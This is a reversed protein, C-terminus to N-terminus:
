DVAGLAALVALQLAQFVETSSRLLSHLYPMFAVSHLMNLATYTVLLHCDLLESIRSNMIKLRGIISCAFLLDIDEPLQRDVQLDNTLM